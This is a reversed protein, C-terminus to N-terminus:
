LRQRDLGKEEFLVPGNRRVHLKISVVLEDAGAEWAALQAEKAVRMVTDYDGQLVTEMPGVVFPLGSKEIMAIARDIIPYAPQQSLPVIQLALHLTHNM